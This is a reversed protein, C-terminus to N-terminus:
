NNSYAMHKQMKKLFILSAMIIFIMSIVAVKYRLPGFQRLGVVFLSWVLPGLIAAFREACGYFGFYEGRETVPIIATYLARTITWTGGFLIGMLAVAIILSLGGSNIQIFFMLAMVWGIIVANLLKAYGFKDGLKGIVIAGVAGMTLLLAGLFVKEQDPIKLVIELYLPFNDQITLVADIFLWYAILFYFIEPRTRLGKFDKLVKSYAQKMSIKKPKPIVTQPEKLFIFVISILVAFILASPIFAQLRGGPQFFPIQGSVFPLILLLGVIAGIWGAALGIGSVTGYKERKALNGLMSHYFILSLQYFYIVFIFSLIGIIIPSIGTFVQGSFGILFTFFFIPIATLKMFLVRKNTIDSIVGLAPLTLLLLVTAAVDTFNFWFESVGQEIVLWQSFYLGLNIIVISNAFDFLAWWLIQRSQKPNDM